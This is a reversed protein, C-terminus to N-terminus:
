QDLVMQIAIVLGSSSSVTGSIPFTRYYPSSSSKRAWGTIPQDLSIARTDSIAGGADTLGNILIGTATITGTAPSTPVNAVTYTFSNTQVNSITKAGNYDSQDAGSILVQDGNTMGHGTFSVNATTTNDRAITVVNGFPLEGTGDAAELYVRANALAAGTEDDVSVTTTVPNIVLIISGAAGTDDVTPADFESGINLTSDFTETYTIASNATDDAGYGNFFNSFTYSRAGDPNFNIAHRTGGAIGSFTTRFITAANSVDMFADQSASEPPTIVSNRIQSRINGTDANVYEVDIYQTSIVEANASSLDLNAGHILSSGYIGASTIFTNSFDIDWRVGTGAAQIIAGQAGTAASGTGSKLGLEVDCTGGSNVEASIKYFSDRLFEQEDWLWLVNTDSFQHTVTDANGFRIPTNIKYSGGTSNVFTGVAVGLQSAIDASTWPTSGGNRGDVTIGPSSRDLRRIEDMWTNDVMRPMTGSTIAAWGVRQIATTAPVTGNTWGNTVAVSRAEDIDVVFQVWGGSIAPPWDDSGAVYVEFWDTVTAGTFRIRFGGSAKTALLGVIGCNCWIYFVNNQWNQPSGANYLLGDLSSTVYQGISNTGQIKIDPEATGASAGSLDVTNTASDLADVQIRADRIADVM